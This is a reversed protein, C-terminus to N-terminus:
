RFLDKLAECRATFADRERKAYEEMKDLYSYVTEKDLGTELLANVFKNISEYKESLTGYQPNKIRTAVESEIEDLKYFQEHTINM